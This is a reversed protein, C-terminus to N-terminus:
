KPQKQKLWEKYFADWQVNPIVGGLENFDKDPDIWAFAMYCMATTPLKEPPTGKPVLMAIPDGNRETYWVDAEPYEKAMCQKLTTYDMTYFQVAQGAALIKHYDRENPDRGIKIKTANYADWAAQRDAADAKQRTDIKTLMAVLLEIEGSYLYGPDLVISVCKDLSETITIRPKSRHGSDGLWVAEYIRRGHEGAREEIDYNAVRENM